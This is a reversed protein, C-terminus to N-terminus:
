TLHHADGVKITVGVGRRAGKGTPTSGVALWLTHPACLDSITPLSPCLKVTQDFILITKEFTNQGPIPSKGLSPTKTKTTILLTSHYSRTVSDSSSCRNWKHSRRKHGLSFQMTPTALPLPLIFWDCHEIGSRANPQNKRKQKRSRCGPLFPLTTIRGVRIGELKHSRKSNRNEIKVLDYASKLSRSVGVSESM